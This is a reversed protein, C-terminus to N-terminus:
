AAKHFEEPLLQGFKEELGYIVDEMAELRKLLHPLTGAEDEGGMIRLDLQLLRKYLLWINRHYGDTTWNKKGEAKYQLMWNLPDTKVRWEKNIPIIM